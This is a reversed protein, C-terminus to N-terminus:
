LVRESISTPFVEYCGNCSSYFRAFCSTTIGVVMKTADRFHDVQFTPLFITSGDFVENQVTEMKSVIAEEKLEGSAYERTMFRLRLAM